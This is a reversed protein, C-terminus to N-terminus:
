HVLLMFFVTFIIALILYGFVELIDILRMM